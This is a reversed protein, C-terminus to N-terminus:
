SRGQWMGRGAARAVAEPERLSASAAKAWGDLVLAASLKVGDAVCDAMPRSQRDRGHIKCEVARGRVLSSLANAAAAGCDLMTGSGDRCLSGRAPAAIGELRVVREGLRLTEGDIVALKNPAASVLGNAPARAPADSSHVFLSAAVLLTAAGGVAALLVGASPLATSWFAIPRPSTRFIRQKHNLSV